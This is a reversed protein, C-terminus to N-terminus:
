WESRPEVWGPCIIKTILFQRNRHSMGASKIAVTYRTPRHPLNRLFQSSDSDRRVFLHVPATLEPSTGILSQWQNEDAFEHNYYDSKELFLRMEAGSSVSGDLLSDWSESCYRAYSKFDVGGGSEDFPVCLLRKSGGELSVSFRAFVSGGTAAESMKDVGVVKEDRGAGDRYFRAMLEGVGDPNLVWRLREEDTTASLFRDAIERPQPGQWRVPAATKLLTSQTSHNADSAVDTRGKRMMFIASLAALLVVALVMSFLRFAPKGATATGFAMEPDPNWSGGAGDEPSEFDYDRIKRYSRSM